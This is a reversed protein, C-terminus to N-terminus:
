SLLAPIVDALWALVDGVVTSLKKWLWYMGEEALWREFSNLSSIAEQREATRAEALRKQLQALEAATLSAMKTVEKSVRATSTELHL